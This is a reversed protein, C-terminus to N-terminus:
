SIDVTGTIRLYCLYNYHYCYTFAIKLLLIRHGCVRFLLVYAMVLIQYFYLRWIWYLFKPLYDKIYNSKWHLMIISSVFFITRLICFLVIYMTCHYNVYCTSSHCSWIKSQVPQCYVRPVEEDGMGCLIFM